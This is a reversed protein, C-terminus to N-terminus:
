TQNYNGHNTGQEGIGLRKQWESLATIADTRIHIFGQVGAEKLQDLHAKPDGAVVVPQNVKPCVEEALTLYEPDSSCLVILDADTQEYEHSIEVEFGACGFFNQSFQSRAQRMTLDGRELLLIKPRKGRERAYAETKRRLQEFASAARWIGLPPELPDVSTENLDPYNNVGVLTRRRSSVAKEKAARSEALAREISSKAKVYGGEAEVQQFLEWGKHALADTLWEVYYSGGAPDAVSDLHSEEKILRQINVALRSGFCFPRIELSDCGGIVAAMAETTARLVNAFPDYISKDSLATCAHIKMLCSSEERPQFAWVAHAWLLRAARLKAIEFFYTSGIAFVFRIDNAAEDVDRGSQLQEVLKEVGLAIGYGLEQVITGGQDHIVDVRVADAPLVGPSEVQQWSQSGRGRVFPFAGPLPEIRPKLDQIDERRFYPRVIIGEDTNWLLKKNYDAGKLDVQIASDWVETSVPPFDDLLHLNKALPCM